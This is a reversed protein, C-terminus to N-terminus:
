PSDKGSETKYEESMEPPTNSTRPLTVAQDLDLSLPEPSGKTIMRPSSDDPSNWWGDSPPMNLSSKWRYFHEQTRKTHNRGHPGHVENRRVDVITNELIQALGQALSIGFVVLLVQHAWLGQSGWGLGAMAVVCSVKVGTVLSATTKSFKFLHRIYAGIGEHLSIGIQRSFIQLSPNM